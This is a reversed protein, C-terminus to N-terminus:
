NKTEVKVDIKSLKEKLKSLDKELNAKLVSLCIKQLMEYYEAYGAGMDALNYHHKLPYNVRIDIHCDDCKQIFDEIDEIDNAMKKLDSCENLVKKLNEATM